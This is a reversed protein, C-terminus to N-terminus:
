LLLKVVEETSMVEAFEDRISEINVKHITEADWGGKGFAATADEVLIIRGEATKGTEEHISDVVGLNAAMRLTTSVCHDTTLGCIVLQKVGKERLLAELGTGVFASNVHKEFVPEGERPEACPMFAMGDGNNPHLPSAVNLSSHYVHMVHPGRGGHKATSARFASLLTTVSDDFQPTSRSTGYYTPHSLGRQIDVLLLATSTPELASM